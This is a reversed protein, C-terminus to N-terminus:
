RIHVSCGCHALCSLLGVERSNVRWWHFCAIILYVLVYIADPLSLQQPSQCLYTLSPSPCFMCKASSVQKPFHRKLGFGSATISPIHPITHEESFVCCACLGRLLFTSPKLLLLSALAAVPLPSSLLDASLLGELHPM